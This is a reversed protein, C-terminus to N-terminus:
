TRNALSAEEAKECMLILPLMLTLDFISVIALEIDLYKEM